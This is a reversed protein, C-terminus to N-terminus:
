GHSMLLGLRTKGDERNVRYHSSPFTSHRKRKLTGKPRGRERHSEM